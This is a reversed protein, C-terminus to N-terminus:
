GAASTDASSAPPRASFPWTEAVIHVRLSNIKLKELDKKFGKPNDLSGDLDYIVCVLDQIGPRSSAYHAIDLILEDRIKKAGHNKYAVKAEVLVHDDKILFDIRNSGGAYSPGNEEPRVDEYLMRIAMEMFDQVDYEDWVQISQKNSRRPGTLPAAAAPLETLVDILASVSPGWPKEDPTSGVGGPFPLTAPISMRASQTDTQPQGNTDPWEVFGDDHLKGGVKELTNRLTETKRPELLSKASLLNLLQNVVERKDSAPVSKLANAVTAQRSSAKVQAYDVGAFGLAKELDSATPGAGEEWFDSLASAVPLWNKASTTIM